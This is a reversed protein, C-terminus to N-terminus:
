DGLVDIVTVVHNLGQQEPTIIAGAKERLLGRNPQNGQLGGATTGVKVM